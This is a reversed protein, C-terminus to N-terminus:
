RNLVGKIQTSRQLILWKRGNKASESCRGKKVLYNGKKYSYFKQM